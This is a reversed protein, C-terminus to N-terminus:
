GGGPGPLGGGVAGTPAPAASPARGLATLRWTGEDTREVLGGVSLPVLIRAVDLEAVGVVAAIEATPASRRAPVADLVAHALDRLGDRPGPPAHGPLALQEGVPAVHDLVQEASCVLRTPEDGQLVQHCGASLRSTVPGPVVCVPRLLAHAHRVTTRAGSRVDAEVLVTGRGLAAILRNRTLFRQRMSPTGPPAESVLVGGDLVRDFLSENGQPYLVDIGGALVVVTPSGGALCGRHAAADIGFAGGSVTAWGADALGCALEGAVHQGYGTAARAGVVAVSREVIEALHGTGRVWLAHPAAAERRRPPGTTTHGPGPLDGLRPPWEDDGPVVLRAGVAGARALLLAPQAAGDVHTNVHTNPPNGRLGEWARVAGVSAVVDALARDGPAGLLTLGARALREARDATM